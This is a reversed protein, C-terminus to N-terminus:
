LFIAIDNTEASVTQRNWVVRVNMTPRSTHSKKMEGSQTVQINVNNSERNYNKNCKINEKIQRNAFCDQIKYNVKNSNQAPILM